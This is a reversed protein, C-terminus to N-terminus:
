FSHTPPTRKWLEGYTKSVTVGRFLENQNPVTAVDVRVDQAVVSFLGGLADVFHEDVTDLRQVYYFAGDRLKAIGDMLVPDHDNGFGFTHVTFNQTKLQERQLM